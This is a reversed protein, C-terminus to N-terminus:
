RLCHAARRRTCTRASAAIWLLDVAKLTFTGARNRQNGDEVPDAAM